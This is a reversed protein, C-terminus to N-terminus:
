LLFREHGVEWFVEECWDGTFGLLLAILQVVAFPCWRAACIPEMKLVLICPHLAAAHRDVLVVLVTALLAM